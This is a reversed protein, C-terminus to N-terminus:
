SITSIFFHKIHICRLQLLSCTSQIEIQSFSNPLRKLLGPFLFIIAMYVNQIQDSESNSDTCTHKNWQVLEDHSLWRLFVTETVSKLRNWLLIFDSPHYSPCWVLIKLCIHPAFQAQYIQLLMHCEVLICFICIIIIM